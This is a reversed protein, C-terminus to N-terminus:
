DSICCFFLVGNFGCCLVRYVLKFSVPTHNDHFDGVSATDGFDSADTRTESSPWVGDIEDANMVSRCVSATEGSM